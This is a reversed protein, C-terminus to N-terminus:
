DRRVEELLAAAERTRPHLPGAGALLAALAREIRSRAGLSDGSALLAQAEVLRAEGVFASRTEALSDPTAMARAERALDLAQPVDGLALASRGAALVIPRLRKADTREAGRHDALVALFEPLAARGNGQSLVILGDLVRPDVIADEAFRWRQGGAALEALRAQARRAEGLRGLQVLARGEGFLGRGERYRNTDRVAQAVVVRFYKLASDAHGQNLAAEAYHIATLFPVQRTSDSREFAELNKRMLTDAEATEGLTTLTLALNHGHIARSLTGGRGSSDMMAIVRRFVEVGERPRGAGDLAGALHGLLDLYEVDRTMGISDRIAVSRQATVLAEEPRQMEDALESRMNLCWAEVRPNRAERVLSENRDFLALAEDLHGQHRLLDARECRGQALQATDHIALSLSEARVLLTDQVKWEDVERYRGSMQLLFMTRLKPDSMAQRELVVRGADLVERMTMPRDGIESLLVSQFEVQGDARESERVAADRQRRAERMEGLSFATAGVLAALSVLSAGVVVGNRRVFKRVRYAASDPRALVPLGTRWRELDDRLAAASPYRREPDKRLAKMVILDLDGRLRRELRDPTTGRAGARAADEDAKGPAGLTASPRLPEVEGVIREIEGPTRGRVEYPRRGTLLEYLLVGLAYTDTATTAAGGRVQEPAAYEPTLALVGTRTELRDDEGRLPDLLKAIGFDLLKLQGDDRVLINSPKLDRHIVFHEHAYRVADCVAAFRTLRDEVTLRRADCWADIPEGEVLEMAFYPRGDAALGGDILRAIGPHELLALIRREEMFRRVVAEGGGAHRVLKLAVRQRLQADEREALYVVGMGGHGLERLIRFPGVREPAPAEVPDVLLEPALEVVPSELFEASRVSADLLRLVEAVLSADGGSARSLFAAREGPELDLAADFLRDVERFREARDPPSTV